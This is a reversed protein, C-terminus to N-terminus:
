SSITRAWCWSSVSCRLTLWRRNTVPVEIPPMCVHTHPQMNGVKM